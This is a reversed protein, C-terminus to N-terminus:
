RKGAKWHEFKRNLSDYRRKLEAQSYKLDKIQANLVALSDWIAEHESLPEQAIISVEEPTERSQRCLDVGILIVAILCLVTILPFIHWRNM